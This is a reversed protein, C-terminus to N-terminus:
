DPASPQSLWQAYSRSQWLGPEVGPLARAFVPGAAAALQGALPDGPSTAEFGLTWWVEGAAYIDTLEVECEPQEGKTATDM